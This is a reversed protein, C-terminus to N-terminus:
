RGAQAAIRPPHVARHCHQRGQGSLEILSRDGSRPEVRVWASQFEVREVHSGCAHEVVLTGRQLAIREGDAAHRAYIFMATGVATLEIWAFSMVMRAGQHWFFSAITLSVMCLMAFCGLMQRPTLSCNRKLKWEVQWGGAGDRTEQAFHWVPVKASPDFELSTTSASM